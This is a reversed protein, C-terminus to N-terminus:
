TRSRIVDNTQNLYSIQNNNLDNPFLRPIDERSSEFNRGGALDLADGINLHAPSPVRMSYTIYDWNTLAMWIWSLKKETTELMFIDTCIRILYIRLQEVCADQVTQTQDLTKLWMSFTQTTDYLTVFDHL